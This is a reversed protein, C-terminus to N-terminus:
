TVIRFKEEPHRLEKKIEELKRQISLFLEQEKKSLRNYLEEILRDKEALIDEVIRKGKETLVVWTKRKDQFDRKKRVLRKNVLRSITETCTSVAYNLERSLETLLCRKMRFITELVRYQSYTVPFKEWPLLDRISLEM